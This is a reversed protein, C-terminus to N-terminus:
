YFAVKGKKEHHNPDMSHEKFKYAKSYVQRGFYSENVAKVIARFHGINLCSRSITLIEMYIGRFGEVEIEARRRGEVRIDEMLKGKYKESTLEFLINFVSKRDEILRKRERNIVNARLFSRGKISRDLERKSLHVRISIKMFEVELYQIRSLVAREMSKIVVSHKYESKVSEWIVAKKDEVEIDQLRSVVAEEMSQIVESHEYKAKREIPKVKLRRNLSRMEKMAASEDSKLTERRSAKEAEVEIESERISSQFEEVTMEDLDRTVADIKDQLRDRRKYEGDAAM